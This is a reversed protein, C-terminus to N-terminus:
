QLRKASKIAYSPSFSITTCRRKAVFLDNTKATCNTMRRRSVLSGHFDARALLWQAMKLLSLDSFSDAVVEQRDRSPRM